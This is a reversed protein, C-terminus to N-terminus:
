ILVFLFRLSAFALFGAFALELARRPIGHALAVGIPAALVSVPVIVAAGLLSVYGVSGPPLGSADWGAWVYGLTGAVAVAVGLGASVAVSQTLPRGYLSMWTTMFASVGIGMLSSMTGMFVGYPIRFGLGPLTDAIRWHRAGILFRISMLTALAVWVAMLTDSHVLKAILSGITVGAVVPLIMTRMLDTDVAGRRYHSAYARLSTPVIVALSTGVCLQMRFADDVGITRFTEFLIPVLIAGGGLGLMGSLLGMVFGGALLAVVPWALECLPVGLVM